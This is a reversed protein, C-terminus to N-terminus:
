AARRLPSLGGRRAVSQRRRLNALSRGPDLVDLPALARQASRLVDAFCLGRKHSCWPRLPPTAIATRHVGESFWLVLTTYTIGVFLATREVAARKRASSDVFGLLQKLDRFCVEIAWRDAYMELVVPVSVSADTSFFVRIGVAGDDVKM